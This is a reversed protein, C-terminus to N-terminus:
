RQTAAAKTEPRAREDAAPSMFLWVGALALIILRFCLDFWRELHGPATHSMADNLM